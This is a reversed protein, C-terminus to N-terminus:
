KSNVRIVMIYYKVSNLTWLFSLQMEEITDFSKNNFTKL